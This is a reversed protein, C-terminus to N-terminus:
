FFTNASKAIWKQVSPHAMMAKNRRVTERICVVQFEVPLRNVFEMLSDFNDMSAHHSITGTLAFLISPESPVVITKPSSILAEITPLSQYIKCFTLFERAVGESVTGALMPLMSPSSIDTIQLLRNAFEWTM